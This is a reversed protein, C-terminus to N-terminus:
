VHPLSAGVILSILYQFVIACVAVAIVYITAKEQPSKMLKPLGLWLLYIGYLGVITLFRLGPIMLFIGALWVPTFSYVTLKLANPFDKQAGFQPALLDIIIAIVYVIVFSLLYTIVASLLGAMIPVRFSGIVPVSIGIISTGIFGAIAPIAALYIVYNPFLVGPSGSEREIVPWETDPTMLIAKVREIINM